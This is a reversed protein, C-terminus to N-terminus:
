DLAVETAASRRDHGMGGRSALRRLAPRDAREARARAARDVNGFPDRGYAFRAPAAGFLPAHFSVGNAALHDYDM